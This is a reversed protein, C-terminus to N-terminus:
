AVQQDTFLHVDRMEQMIGAPVDAPSVGPALAQQLVVKKGAGCVFYVCHDIEKAFQVTTTARQPYENKIGADYGVVWRDTDVFTKGFWDTDESYPMMGFTHGDAGMGATAIIKGDTHAVKWDKLLKEYRDAFAALSEGTLPVTELFSVGSAIIKQIFPLNKLQLFNNIKPDSSFREDAVGMTVRPSFITSDVSDLVQFASGGSLLLLVDGPSQSILGTLFEGAEKAADNASQAVHINAM